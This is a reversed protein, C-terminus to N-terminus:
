RLDRAVLLMLIGRDTTERNKKKSRNVKASDDPKLDAQFSRKKARHHNNNAKTM